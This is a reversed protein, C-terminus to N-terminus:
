RKRKEGEKVLEYLMKKREEREVVWGGKTGERIEWIRKRIRESPPIKKM